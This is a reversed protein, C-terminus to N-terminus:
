GPTTVHLLVAEEPNLLPMEVGVSALLGGGLTIGTRWWLTGAPLNTHDGPQLPAVSYRLTPDLGPLAVRGSPLADSSTLRSLVYVAETRDASVVGVLHLGPDPPEGHVVTGSAILPRYQKHLAVWASLEDLEAEPL